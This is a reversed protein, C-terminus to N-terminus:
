PEMSASQLAQMLRDYDYESPQSDATGYEDEAPSTIMRYARLIAGVANPGRLRLATELVGRKLWHQPPQPLYYTEMGWKKYEKKLQRAWGELGGHTEVKILIRMLAERMAPAFVEHEPHQRLRKSHKLRCKVGSVISRTSQSVSASKGSVSVGEHSRYYAMGADTGRFTHGSELVRAYFDIDGNTFLEEDWRVKSVLARPWLVSPGWVLCGPDHGFMANIAEPSGWHEPPRVVPKLDIEEGSVQFRRWGSAALHDSPLNESACALEEIHSPHLLDDDDLFLVYAGSSADIGTNRAASPGKPTDHCIVRIRDSFDKLVAATDEESAEDVVVTEVSPWSQDLVSRLTQRLLPARNRTPIIVSVKTM